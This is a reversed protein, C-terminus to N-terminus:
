QKVNFVMDAGPKADVMKAFNRGDFSVRLHYSGQYVALPEMPAEGIKAGNMYIAAGKPANVTLKAQKLEIADDVRAGPLVRYRKYINIRKDKDTFRLRHQGVPLEVEIPSRGLHKDQVYVDVEPVVSVRLHGTKAVPKAPDDEGGPGADVVEGPEVLEAPGPDEPLEAIGGEGLAVELMEKPIVHRESDETLGEPPPKSFHFVSYLIAGAVLVALFLMSRSNDGVDKRFSTISDERIPARPVPGPMPTGEDDGGDARSTRRGPIRSTTEHAAELFNARKELRQPPPAAAYAAAVGPAAAEPPAMAPETPAPPLPAPLDDPMTAAPDDDVVTSTPSPAAPTPPTTPDARVTASRDVVQRPTASPPAAAIVTEAERPIAARKPKETGTSPPEPAESPEPAEEPAAETAAAPEPEPEPEAAAEPEPASSPSDPFAALEAKPKPAEAAPAPEPESEPEPTPESPPRAVPASSPPARVASKPRAAEFLKLDVGEPPAGRASLVTVADPDDSSALLDERQEREPADPPILDDVVGRVADRSALGDEGDCAEILAARFAAVTPHRDAGRKSMAKMAVAALAAARGELELPKPAGTMIAGEVDAAGAFPPEGALLEYLIAGLAYIDSAASATSRGGIVQEPSLYATKSPLAEHPAFASAGYGSVKATGDFGILVTDPRLGGHAIARNTLGQEGTEHAYAVGAALDAVVRAAVNTPLSAQQDRAALLLSLLPEGDGYDVVRAWGEEFCELGHVGILNPHRLQTVFATERQLKAVQKLDDTLDKPLWVVVVARERSPMGDVIECGLFGRTDLKSPLPGLVAYQRREAM